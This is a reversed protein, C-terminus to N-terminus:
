PPRRSSCTVRHGDHENRGQHLAQGVPLVPDLNLAGGHALDDVIEIGAVRAQLVPQDFVFRTLGFTETAMSPSTVVSPMNPFTLSLLSTWKRGAMPPPPGAGRGKSSSLARELRGGSPSAIELYRTSTLLSYPGIGNM